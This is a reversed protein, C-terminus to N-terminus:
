SEVRFVCGAPLREVLDALAREVYAEDKSELTLRVRYDPDSLKPYSGLLLEPFALLTANLFEAIRTENECVLIQRLFYPRARMRDRLALVKTQFLEPIGPLIYVNEVVVTPFALKDDVILEAGEPIQAMKLHAANLRNGVFSEIARRLEIHEVLPRGFAAAVGDMTIDDHTPGVGGSTFVVDYRRSFVAVETAIQELEDPIVVVRELAVGIGRLERALFPTNTDIVKGSLIENGIVVLSASLHDYVRAFGVM